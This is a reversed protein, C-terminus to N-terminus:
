NGMAMGEKQQYFKNEFQFYTTTLCFDLLEMIDEVQLPSHEPFSSNPNLRNRIAHLVEEVPIKTFLSVDFSVLYDENRLNMEQTLKIFHKSNKLFSDTNGAVPSLIKHLFDPLAYSPSGGSSVIPRLPIDAEYIKPLGYLHLPKHKLAALLVTKHM